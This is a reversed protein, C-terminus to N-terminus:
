KKNKRKKPKLLQSTVQAVDSVGLLGIGALKTQPTGGAAILGKGAIKGFKSAANLGSSIKKLQKRKKVM